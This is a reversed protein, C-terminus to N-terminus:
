SARGGLPIHQNHDDSASVSTQVERSATLSHTSPNVVKFEDSMYFTRCQPCRFYATYYYPKKLKKPHFKSQRLLIAHGCKKCADGERFLKKEPFWEVDNGCSLCTARIMDEIKEFSWRNELCNKCAQM